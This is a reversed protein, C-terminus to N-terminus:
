LSVSLSGFRKSLDSFAFKLKELEDNTFTAPKGNVVNGNIRQSLWSDTKNFYKKAIYAISTAPLVDEMKQRISLATAKEATEAASNAMAEAFLDADKAILKQMEVDIAEREKDNKARCFDEKLKNIKEIM